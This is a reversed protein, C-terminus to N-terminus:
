SVARSTGEGALLRSARSGAWAIVAAACLIASLTLGLALFSHASLASSLIPGISAGVFIFCGYLAVASGRAHAGLQNVLVIIGPVAIAIGSVFVVSSLVLPLVAAALAEAAIGAAAILLGAMLVRSAGCRKILQGAVLSLLIGPIGAIRIWMLGHAGIGFAGALHPGLGAYMAVFSLLLSVSVTYAALLPVIKFLGFLRLVAAKLSVKDAPEAGAPLRLACLALMLYCAALIGFTWRWGALQVAAGAYLQGLVGSLLFGCGIMSIVVPRLRPPFVDGVYALAVPPFSAAMFGQVTRLAILLDLSPSLSVMVSSVVLAFLGGALIHQRRARDSWTGFVINGFAYAFGFASGVWVVRSQDAGFAGSLVPLLPITIYLLSVVLVAGIALLLMIGAAAKNGQIERM